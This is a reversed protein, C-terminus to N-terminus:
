ARRKTRRGLAVIGACGAALLMPSGPEPVNQDPLRTALQFVANQGSFSFYSDVDLASRYSIHLNNNAFSIIPALAGDTLAGGLYGVDTLLDGAQGFQIDNMWFDFTQFGGQDLSRLTLTRAKPDFDARVDGGDWEDPNAALNAETLEDGAGVARAAASFVKAQGGRLAPYNSEARFDASVINASAAGAACALAAAALLHVALHNMTNKMSNKM